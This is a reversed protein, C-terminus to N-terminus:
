NATQLFLNLFRPCMIDVGITYQQDWYLVLSIDIIFIDDDIELFYSISDAFSSILEQEPVRNQFIISYQIMRHRTKRPHTLSMPFLYETPGIIFESRLPLSRIWNCFGFWKSFRGANWQHSIIRSQMHNTNARPM